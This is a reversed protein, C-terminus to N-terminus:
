AGHKWKNNHLGRHCCACLPILNEKDNNTRDKDKHHIEVACSFEDYGCRSCVLEAETFLNRYYTKLDDVIAM